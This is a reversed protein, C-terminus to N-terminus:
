HHGLGAQNSQSIKYLSSDDNFPMNTNNNAGYSTCSCAKKTKQGFDKRDQDIGNYMGNDWSEEGDHSHRADRIHSILLITNILAIGLGIAVLTILLNHASETSPSSM